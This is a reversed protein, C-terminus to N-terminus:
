MLLSRLMKLQKFLSKIMKLQKNNLYKNRWVQDSGVIFIDFEKNLKDLKDNENFKRTKNIFKTNYEIFNKSEM